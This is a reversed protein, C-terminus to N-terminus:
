FGSQEFAAPYGFKPNASVNWLVELKEGGRKVVMKVETETRKRIDKDWLAFFPFVLFNVEARIVDPILDSASTEVLANVEKKEKVQKNALEEPPELSDIQQEDNKFLENMKKKKVAKRKFYNWITGYENDSM